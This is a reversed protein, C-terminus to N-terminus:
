VPPVQTSLSMPEAAILPRNCSRASNLPTDSRQSSPGWILFNSMLKRLRIIDAEAEALALIARYDVGAFVVLRQEIYPEYEEREEITCEFRDLDDHTAFRQVAQRELNGYPM